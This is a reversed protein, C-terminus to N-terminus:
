VSPGADTTLLRQRVADVFAATNEQLIDRGEDNAADLESLFETCRSILALTSPDGGCEQRLAELTGPAAAQAGDGLDQREQAEAARRAAAVARGMADHMDVAQDQGLHYCFSAGTDSALRLLVSGASTAALNWDTVPVVVVEDPRGAHAQSSLAGCVSMLAVLQETPLLLDLSRGDIDFTLAAQRGDGILLGSTLSAPALNADIM